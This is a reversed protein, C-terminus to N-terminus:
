TMQIFIWNNFKTHHCINKKLSRLFDDIKKKGGALGKWIWKVVKIDEMKPKERLLFFNVELPNDRAKIAEKIRSGLAPHNRFYYKM